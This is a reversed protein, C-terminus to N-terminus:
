LMRLLMSLRQQQCAVVCARLCVPVLLEGSLTGKWAKLHGSVASLGNTGAILMNNMSWVEVFGLLLRIGDM